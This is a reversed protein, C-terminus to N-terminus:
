QRSFGDFTLLLNPPPLPMKIKIEIEYRLIDNWSVIDDCVDFIPTGGFSYVLCVGLSSRIHCCMKYDQMSHQVTGIM